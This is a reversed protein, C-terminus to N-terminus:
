MHYLVLFPIDAHIAEEEAASARPFGLNEVFHDYISPNQFDGVFFDDHAGLIGVFMKGESDKANLRLVKDNIDFLCYGTTLTLFIQKGPVGYPVRSLATGHRELASQFEITKEKEDRSLGNAFAFRVNEQLIGKSDDFVSYGDDKMSVYLISGNNSSLYHRLSVADTEQEAYPFYKDTIKLDSDTIFVRYRMDKETVRNGEMPAYAFIFGGNSLSAFDWAFFSMDTKSIFELTEQNYALVCKQFHDLVYVNGNGLCFSQISLHEGPGRGKKDIVGLFEGRRDFSFIRDNRYDGVFLHNGSVLVKDISGIPHESDTRLILYEVSKITGDPIPVLNSEDCTVVVANQYGQSDRNRCGQLFLLLGVVALSKLTIVTSNKM